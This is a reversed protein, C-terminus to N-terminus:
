TGSAPKSNETKHPLADKSVWWTVAGVAKWKAQDTIDVPLYTHNASILVDSNPLRQLRAVKFGLDRHSFVALKKDLEARDTVGTDVAIISEPYIVPVMSNGAIQLCLM